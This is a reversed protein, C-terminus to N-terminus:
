DVIEDLSRRPVSDLQDAPFGLRLLIQAFGTRGLLSQLKPRLSAVQIPQNLFSAQLGNAQAKLLIRELAQGAGLWDIVSDGETGLVAIVSSEDVLQKDKAGVGKGLDFTRVVIHAIPAVIGPVTLGDGRHRPHIWAALERRWSPNSWQLLDGESVIAAISQRISESEIVQLWAGEETAAEILALLISDTVERPAFRKRYTRRAEISQFLETEGLSPSETEHFSAVALLDEDNHDPVIECTMDLGEHAAAVRLNMLACGCSITLERDDPDNAPLARTRDAYLSVTNNNIQFRWPQTNHSSPALVAYKLLSRLREANPTSSEFIRM